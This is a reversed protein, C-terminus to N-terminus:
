LGEVPVAARRGGPLTVLVVRGQLARWNIDPRAEWLSKWAGDSPDLALLRRPSGTRLRPDQGSVLLVGELEFLRTSPDLRILPAPSAFPVWQTGDKNSIELVGPKTVPWSGDEAQPSAM